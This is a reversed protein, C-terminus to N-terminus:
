STWEWSSLSIRNNQMDLLIQKIKIRLLNLTFFKQVYNAKNSYRILVFCSRSQENRLDGLSFKWFTLENGLIDLGYKWTFEVNSNLRYKNKKIFNIKSCLLEASSLPWFKKKEYNLIIKVSECTKIIMQERKELLKSSGLM